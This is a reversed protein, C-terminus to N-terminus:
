FRFSTSIQTFQQQGFLSNKDFDIKEYIDNHKKTSHTKIHHHYEPSKIHSPMEEM